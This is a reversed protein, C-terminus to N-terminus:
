ARHAHSGDAYKLKLIKCDLNTESAALQEIGYLESRLWVLPPVLLLWSSPVHTREMKHVLLETAM